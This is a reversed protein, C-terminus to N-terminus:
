SIAPALRTAMEATSENTNETTGGATSGATSGVTRHRNNAFHEVLQTEIQGGMMKGPYWRVPLSMNEGRM